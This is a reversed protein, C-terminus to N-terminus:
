SLSVGCEWKFVAQKTVGLVTAFKQQTFGRDTCVAKLRKEFGILSM